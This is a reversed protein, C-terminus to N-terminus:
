WQYIYIYYGIWILEIDNVTEISTNGNGSQLIHYIINVIGLTLIVFDQVSTKKNFKKNVIFIYLLSITFLIVFGILSGIIEIM